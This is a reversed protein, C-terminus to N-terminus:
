PHARRLEAGLAGALRAFEPEARLEAARPM